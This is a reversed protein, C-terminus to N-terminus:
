NAAVFSIWVRSVVLEDSGRVCAFSVCSYRLLCGGGGLGAEVRSSSKEGLNGLSNKLFNAVTKGVADTACLM